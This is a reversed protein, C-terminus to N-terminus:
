SVAEKMLFLTNVLVGREIPLLIVNFIGNFTINVAHRWLKILTYRIASCIKKTIVGGKGFVDQLCQLFQFSHHLILIIQADDLM